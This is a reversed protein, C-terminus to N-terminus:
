RAQARTSKGRNKRGPSRAEASEEGGGEILHCVCEKMLVDEPMQKGVQHLRVLEARLGELERIHHDIAEIRSEMLGLAVRCPAVGRDRLDLIERIDDISFDLARASRIFRLRQEDPDDYVRYGNPGRAPKPLLGMQEYYRITQAPLDVKEGLEGIRLM